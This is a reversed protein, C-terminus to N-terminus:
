TYIHTQTHIYTHQTATDTPMYLFSKSKPRTSFNKFAQASLLARERKDQNVCPDNEDIHEIEQRAEM